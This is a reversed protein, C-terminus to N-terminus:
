VFKSASRSLQGVPEDEDEDSFDDALFAEVGPATLQALVFHHQAEYVRKM